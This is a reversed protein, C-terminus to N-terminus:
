DDEQTLNLNMLENIIGGFMNLTNAIDNFVDRVYIYYVTALEAVTLGFTPYDSELFSFHIIRNM